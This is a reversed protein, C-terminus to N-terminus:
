IPLKRLILYQLKVVSIESSSMTFVGDSNQFDPENHVFLYMVALPISVYTQSKKSLIPPNFPSHQKLRM